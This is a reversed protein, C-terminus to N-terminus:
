QTRLGGRVGVGCVGVVPPPGRAAALSFGVGGVVVVAVGGVLWCWLVGGFLGFCRRTSFWCFLCVCLWGVRCCCSVWLWFWEVPPSVFGVRFRWEGLAGPDGVRCGVSEADWWRVRLDVIPHNKLPTAKTTQGVTGAYCASASRWRRRSPARDAPPPVFGNSNPRRNLLIASVATELSRGSPMRVTECGWWCLVPCPVVFLPWGVLGVCRLVSCAGVSRSAVAM